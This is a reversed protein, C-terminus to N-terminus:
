LFFDYSIWVNRQISIKHIDEKYPYRRVPEESLFKLGIRHVPIIKNSLTIIAINTKLKIMMRTDSVFKDM